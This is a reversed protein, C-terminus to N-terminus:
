SPSPPSSPHLHLHPCPHPPLLPPHLPLTSFQKYIKKQNYIFNRTKEQFFCFSQFSTPLISLILIYSKIITKPLFYHSYIPFPPLLNYVLYPDPNTPILPIFTLFSIKLMISNWPPFGHSSKMLIKMVSGDSLTSYNVPSVDTSRPTLSKQFKM